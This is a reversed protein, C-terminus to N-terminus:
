GKRAQALQELRELADDGTRCMGLARPSGTNRGHFDSGGTVLLNCQVALQYLVKKDEPTNRPHEIEIGDIRGALALETVLEMSQYVSPHAFVAVGRAKRIVGLVQDVTQYDPDHLVKGGKGFLPKYTEKYIGDALGYDCLVQMLTSKYLVGGDQALALADELRFQPYIHELERGSQRCVANRRDAMLQCHAILDPCSEDPWYCLIHVRRGREFDFATLETAPILRVNERMRNGYGYRVSHMSDHDSIALHSLGVRAALRPLWDAKLSGDSFTTHTHLDGPM